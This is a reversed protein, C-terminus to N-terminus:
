YGDRALMDVGDMDTRGIINLVLYTSARPASRNCELAPLSNEGAASNPAYIPLDIPVDMWQYNRPAANKRTQTRQLCGICCCRMSRQVGSRTPYFGESKLRNDQLKKCIEHPSGGAHIVTVRELMHGHWQLTIPRLTGLFTKRGTKQTPFPLM